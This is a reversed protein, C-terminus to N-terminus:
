PVARRTTIMTTVTMTMARTEARSVHIATSVVSLEYRPAAFRVTRLPHRQSPQALTSNTRLNSGAGGNGQQESAETILKTLRVTFDLVAHGCSYFVATQRMTLLPVHAIIKYQISILPM